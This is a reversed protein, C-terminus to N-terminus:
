WLELIHDFQKNTLTKNYLWEMVSVLVDYPTEMSIELIEGAQTM